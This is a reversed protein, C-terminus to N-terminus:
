RPAPLLVGPNLIRHPDLEEKMANLAAAFPDPRQRDYWPRHDRGVAHHHTITGGADLIAESVAAKVADWQATESGRRAPALVTYYVAAGDPYVHTLRRNVVSTGCAAEAGRRAAQLVADDLDGFRNWTVATEFTEVLIGAAVLSDRLYPAAQFGDKWQQEPAQGGQRRADEDEPGSIRPPGALEGGHDRVCQLARSLLGEQPHHASEFGLILVASSGDGAGNLLAEGPDLLRCNAPQLGSRVVARAARAGEAFTRHRVSASARHVPRDQVRLWAETVVGLIGESGILIRDPSPGAGSAPLRRSEWPGAPTLARVSQVFEDIRTRGTAYHGGARTVISGGVTAHAYSQPYHRLTLGHPRLGADADPLTTGALIRASASVADVELIGSLRGLDLTVTGSYADGVLPEVGGVVSTGGGYPIVAANAEACWELVAATEKEDRPLAVLDPPNPFEGHFARVVDRYSKGYAHSVREYRDASFIGALSAPVALGPEPLRIDQLRPPTRVETDGFGLMERALAATEEVEARGPQEDEYGWGWFKRRRRDAM